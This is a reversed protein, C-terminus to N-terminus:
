NIEKVEEYKSLFLNIDMARWDFYGVHSYHVKGEKIEFPVVPTKDNMGIRTYKKNIEVM